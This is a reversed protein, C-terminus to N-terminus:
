CKADIEINLRSFPARATYGFYLKRHWIRNIINVYCNYVTYQIPESATKSDFYLINNLFHARARKFTIMMAM